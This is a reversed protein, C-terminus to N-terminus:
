YIRHRLIIMLEAPSRAPPSPFPIMEIFAFRPQGSAYLESFHCLPPLKRIVPSLLYQRPALTHPPRKLIILTYLTTVASSSPACLAFDDEPEDKLIPSMYITILRMPKRIEAHLTLREPIKSDFSIDFIFINSTCYHAISVYYTFQLPLRLM